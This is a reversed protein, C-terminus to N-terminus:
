DSPSHLLPTLSHCLCHPFSPFHAWRDKAIIYACSIRTSLNSQGVVDGLQSTLACAVASSNARTLKKASSVQRRDRAASLRRCSCSNSNNNKTQNQKKKELRCEVWTDMLQVGLNVQFRHVLSSRCKGITNRAGIGCTRVWVRVGAGYDWEQHM